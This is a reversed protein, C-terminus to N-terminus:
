RRCRAQDGHEVLVDIAEDPLEALFDATWYNQMGKPNRRTSCSSCPSTRCRGSWTSASTPRVRAAAPVGGRRGRGPGRLLLRHRDGAPGAGARARLGGAARHHVGPRQRGRRARRGHLRPLLARARRAMAAPYMLMGGLVIPGLPHLRLHFATVVGFNGGGGRLGWFLEPNEDASATVVRGDATVVEAELLNDCVFGFAQARALRERQRPRPGAVGTTSM